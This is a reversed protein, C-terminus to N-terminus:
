PEDTVSIRYDEGSNPHHIILCDSDGGVIKYSSLTVAQEIIALIASEMPEGESGILLHEGAPTASPTITDWTGQKLIPQLQTTM